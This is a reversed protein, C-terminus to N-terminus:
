ELWIKTIVISGGNGGNNYATLELNYEGNLNSIDLSGFQGTITGSEMTKSYITSASPFGVRLETNYGYFSSWFEFNLRNFGGVSINKKSTVSSYAGGGSNVNLRISTDFEVSGQSSSITYGGTMETKDGSDFLYVETMPKWIDNEGIYSDIKNLTGNKMQAVGYVDFNIIINGKTTFKSKSTNYYKIFLDGEELDNTPEYNFVIKNPKIDTIAVIQGNKVLGPLSTATIVDISSIDMLSIKEFEDMVDKLSANNMIYIKHIISKEITKSTDYTVVIKIENEGKKYASNNIDIDFNLDNFNSTYSKLKHENVLVDVKNITGDYLASFKINSKTQESIALIPTSKYPETSVEFNSTWRAINSIRFEDIIANYGSYNLTQNTTWGGIVFGTDFTPTVSSTASWFQVGNKYTTWKSGQKVLAWHVWVNDVKDKITVSSFGNWSGTGSGTYLGIGNYGILMGQAHNSPMSNRNICLAKDSSTKGTSYEWWDITFDKSPDITADTLIYQNEQLSIGKDFKGSSVINASYNTVSNKNLSDDKFNECHLLLITNKM